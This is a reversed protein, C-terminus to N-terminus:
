YYSCPARVDHSDVRTRKRIYLDNDSAASAAAAATVVVLTTTYGKARGGYCCCALAVGGMTRAQAGM